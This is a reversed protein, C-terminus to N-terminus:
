KSLTQSVKEPVFTYKGPQSLWYSKRDVLSNVKKTHRKNERGQRIFLADFQSNASEFDRKSMIRGSTHKGTTIKKTVECKMHNIRHMNSKHRDAEDEFLCDIKELELDNKKQVGGWLIDVKKMGEHKKMAVKGRSGNSLPRFDDVTLGQFYLVTFTEFDPSAVFYVYDLSGKQKLTEYDSQLSIAGSKNVTTLKCEIERDHDAIFIDAKGPAGDAIVSEYRRSLARALFEEQVQSMLINRRGLNDEINMGSESFVKKLDQYFSQMDVLTSRVDERTVYQM